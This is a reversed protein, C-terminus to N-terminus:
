RSFDVASLPTHFPVGELEGAAMWHFRGGAAFLAQLAASPGHSTTKGVAERTVETLEADYVVLQWDVAPGQWEWAFWLPWEAKGVPTVAVPM